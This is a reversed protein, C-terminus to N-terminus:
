QLGVSSIELEHTQTWVFGRDTSRSTRILTGLVQSDFGPLASAYGRLQEVLPLLGEIAARILVDNGVGGDEVNQGISIAWQISVTDVDMYDGRGAQTGELTHATDDSWVALWPASDAVLFTPESHRWDRYEAPLALSKALPALDEAIADVFDAVTPQSM